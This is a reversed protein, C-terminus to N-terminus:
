QVVDITALDIMDRGDTLSLRRGNAADYLGVRLALPGVVGAPVSLGHFDVIPRGPTWTSTPRAGGQPPSDHQAVLRGAADYLHVFVSYDRDLPQLTDWKLDVTVTGGPKTSTNFSADRLTPGAAWAAQPDLSARPEDGRLHLLTLNDGRWTASAPYFQRDLWAKFPANPGATGRYLISWLRPHAEGATELRDEIRAMSETVPDWRQAYTWPPLSPDRYADYAGALSLVNFVVVDDPRAGADRLARADAWPEWNDGRELDKAYVGGGFTPWLTVALALAAAAGALRPWTSWLAVLGYAVALGIFPSAPITYRAAFMHARTGVAVGVLTLAVALIPLLLLSPSLGLSQRRGVVVAAAGGAVIAILTWVAAWGPGYAFVSGYLSASLVDLLHFAPASVEARGEVRSLIPGLAYILWPLFGLVIVGSAVTLRRAARRGQSLRWWPWGRVLAYIGLALLALASYYFTYIALLAGVVWAVLAGWPAPSETDLCRLLGWTALLLGAVTLSYMRAVQAYYVLLPALAVYTAAMLGVPEAASRRRGVWARGAQYALPVCAVGAILSLYRLVFERHGLTLFPRLALYYGPPHVDRATLYAIDSFPLQSIALSWGEDWALPPWALSHVRLGFAVVLLGALLPLRARKLEFSRPTM